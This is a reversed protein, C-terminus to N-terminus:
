LLLIGILVLSKCTFFSCTWSSHELYHIVYILSTDRMDQGEDTGVGRCGKVGQCVAKWCEEELCLSVLNAALISSKQQSWRKPSFTWWWTKCPATFLGYNVM